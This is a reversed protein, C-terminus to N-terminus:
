IESRPQGYLRLQPPPRRRVCSTATTSTAEVGSFDSSSVFSRDIPISVVPTERSTGLGLKAAITEQLRQRDYRVAAPYGLVEGAAAITPVWTMADDDCWLRGREDTELGVDQLGLLRTAGERRAAFLIQEGTITRGELTQLTIEGPTTQYSTITDQIRTVFGNPTDDGNAGSAPFGAARQPADIVTVDSGAVAFLRAFALATRDGGIVILKAPAVQCDMVEEPATWLPAIQRGAFDSADRDISSERPRRASTGTAILILRANVTTASGHAFVRVATPDILRSHGRRVLIGLARRRWAIRREYTDIAARCLEAPSVSGCTRKQFAPSNSGEECAARVAALLGASPNTNGQPRVVLTRAGARAAAEAAAWGEPSEGIVLLECQM